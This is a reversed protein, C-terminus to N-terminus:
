FSNLFRGTWDAPDWSSEFTYTELSKLCLMRKDYSISAFNELVANKQRVKNYIGALSKNAEQGCPTQSPFLFTLYNM